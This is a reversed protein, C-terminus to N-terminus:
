RLKRLHFIRTFIASSDKVAIWRTRDNVTYQDEPGTPTKRSSNRADPARGSRGFAARAAIPDRDPRAQPRAPAPPVPRAPLISGLISRCSPLFEGRGPGPGNTAIRVHLVNSRLARAHKKPGAYRERPM